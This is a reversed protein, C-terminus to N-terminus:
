EARPLRTSALAKLKWEGAIKEWTELWAFVSEQAATDSAAYRPRLVVRKQVVLYAMNGDNSIRIVPPEIDDWVLFTSRDFYSQFRSVSEERPPQTVKGAQINRFDGAFSSVLLEADRNFHALRQQQRVQQM